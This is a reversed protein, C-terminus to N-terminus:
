TVPAVSAPFAPTSGRTKREQPPCRGVLGGPDGSETDVTAKTDVVDKQGLGPVLGQM